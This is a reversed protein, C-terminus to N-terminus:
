TAPKSDDLRRPPAYERRLPISVASVYAAAAHAQANNRTVLSRAASVLDDPSDGAIVLLKGYPDRPNDRMALAAGPRSPLMLRSALESDRLAFVVANGDPLDGVTVPFRVGRFDSFIGFWSTVISAAKLADLDPRDSFVVPLSWPHQSASDFFPVPLLALDNPLPLRTGSLSLESMPNITVWSSHANRCASCSGWLQFVITNNSTLLDAPLSVNAQQMGPM